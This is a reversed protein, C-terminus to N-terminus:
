MGLRGGEIETATGRRTRANPQEDLWSSADAASGPTGAGVGTSGALPVRRWAFSTVPPPARSTTPKWSMFRSSSQVNWNTSGPRARQRGWVVVYECIAAKASEAHVTGSTLRGALQPSVGFYAIIKSASLVQVRLGFSSCASTGLM